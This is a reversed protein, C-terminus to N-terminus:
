AIEKREGKLEPIAEPKNANETEAKYVNILFTFTPSNPLPRHLIACYAGCECYIDGEEDYGRESLRNLEKPDKLYVVKNPKGCKPCYILPPIQTQRVHESM